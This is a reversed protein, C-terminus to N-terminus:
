AVQAPRDPASRGAPTEAFAAALWDVFQRLTEGKPTGLDWTAYYGDAECVLADFLAVLAGGELDEAVMASPALCIGVGARALQIALRVDDAAITPPAPPVVCGLPELWLRWPLRAHHILNFRPLDGPTEPGGAALYGPAAVALLREAGLFRSVGQRGEVGSTLVVDAGGPHGPGAAAAAKLTLRIQPCDAVFRAVRRLLFETCFGSEVGVSLDHVQPTAGVFAEAILNLSLRLRGVYDRGAPTLGVARGHREFLEVGLREELSRVSYSIASQTLNLEEAARTFSQHRAAAEFATIARLSPPRLPM